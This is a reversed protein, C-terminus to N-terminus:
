KQAFPISHRPKSAEAAAAEADDSAVDSGNPVRQENGFGAKPQLSGIKMIADEAKTLRGILAENVKKQEDFMAQWDPAAANAEAVKADPKAAPNAQPASQAEGKNEGTETKDSPAGKGAAEESSPKAGEETKAEPPNGAAQKSAVKAMFAAIQDDSLGQEKLGQQVRALTDENDKKAQKGFLDM